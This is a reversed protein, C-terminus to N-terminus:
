RDFICICYNRTDASLRRGLLFEITITALSSLAIVSEDRYFTRIIISSTAWQVLHVFHKCICDDLSMRSHIFTHTRNLRSCQIHINRREELAMKMCYTISWHELAGVGTCLGKEFINRIINISCYFILARQTVDDRIRTEHPRFTSMMKWAYVMYIYICIIHRKYECENRTVNHVICIKLAALLSRFADANHTRTCFVSTQLKANHAATHQIHFRGFTAASFTGSGM